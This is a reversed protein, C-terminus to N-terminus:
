PPDMIPTRFDDKLDDHFLFVSSYCLAGIPVMEEIHSPCLKVFYNYSDIWELVVLM